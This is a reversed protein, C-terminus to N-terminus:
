GRTSKRVTRQVPHPVGLLLAYVAWLLSGVKLRGTSDPLPEISDYLAQADALDPRAVELWLGGLAFQYHWANNIHFSHPLEARIHYAEFFSKAVVAESLSSFQAIRVM